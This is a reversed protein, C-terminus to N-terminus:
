GLCCVLFLFIKMKLNRKKLVIWFNYLTDKIFQVVENVLDYGKLVGKRYSYIIQRQHNMVKDFEMLQKRIQFNHAEVRKQAREVAKNMWSHTIAEDKEFGLKKMMPAIRDSGFLRM